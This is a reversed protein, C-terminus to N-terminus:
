ANKHISSLMKDVKASTGCLINGDIPLILSKPIRSVYEQPSNGAIQYDQM